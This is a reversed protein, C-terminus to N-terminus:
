IVFNQIIQLSHFLKMDHRSQHNLGFMVVDLEGLTVAFSRNDVMNVQKGM